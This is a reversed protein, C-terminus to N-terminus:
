QLSYGTPYTFGNRIGTWSDRDNTPVFHTVDQLLWSSGDAYIGEWTWSVPDRARWENGTAYEFGAMKLELVDPDGAEDVFQFELSSGGQNFRHHVYRTTVDWDYVHQPDDKASQYPGVSAEVIAAPAFPIVLSGISAYFRIENLQLRCGPVDCSYDEDEWAPTNGRVETINWRFKVFPGSDASLPQRLTAPARAAALVVPAAAFLLSLLKRAM